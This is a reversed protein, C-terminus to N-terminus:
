AALVKVIKLAKKTTATKKEWEKRSREEEREQLLRRPSRLQSQAPIRGFIEFVRDLESPGLANGELMAHYLRFQSFSSARLVRETEQWDGTVAAIHALTHCALGAAPLSLEGFPHPVNRSLVRAHDEFYGFMVSYVYSPLEALIRRLDPNRRLQAETFTETTKYKEGGYRQLLLGLLKWTAKRRGERTLRRKYDFLKRMDSGRESRDARASLELQGCAHLLHYLLSSPAITKVAATVPYRSTKVVHAVWEADRIANSSERLLNEVVNYPGEFEAPVSLGPSHERYKNLLRASATLRESEGKWHHLGDWANMNPDFFCWRGPTIEIFLSAHLWSRTLGEECNAEYSRKLLALQKNGFRVRGLSEDLLAQGTLRARLLCMQEDALRTPIYLLANAGALRAWAAALQIKGLCNPRVEQEDGRFKGYRKPLVANTTQEMLNLQRSISGKTCGFVKNLESLIQVRGKRRAKRWRKALTVAKRPLCKRAETLIAEGLFQLSAIDEPSSPNDKLKAAAELADAESRQSLLGGWELPGIRYALGRHSRRSATDAIDQQRALLEHFQRSAHAEALSSGCGELAMRLTTRFV